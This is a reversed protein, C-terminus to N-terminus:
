ISGCGVGRILLKIVISLMIYIRIFLYIIVLKYFFGAIRLLNGTYKRIKLLLKWKM